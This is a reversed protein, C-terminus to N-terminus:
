RLENFSNILAQINETFDLEICQALTSVAFLLTLCSHSLWALDMHYSRFNRVSAGTSTPNINKFYGKQYLVIRM